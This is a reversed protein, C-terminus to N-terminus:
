LRDNNVEEGPYFIEFAAQALRTKDVDRSSWSYLCESVCGCGVECYGSVVEVFRAGTDTQHPYECRHHIM